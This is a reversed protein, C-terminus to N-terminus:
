ESDSVESDSDYDDFQTAMEAMEKRERAIAEGSRKVEEVRELKEKLSLTPNSLITRVLPDKVPDYEYSETNPNNVENHKYNESSSGGEEKNNAYSKYHRWLASGAKTATYVVSCAIVVGTIALVWDPPQYGSATPVPWATMMFVTYIYNKM